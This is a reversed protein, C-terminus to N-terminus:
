RKERRERFFVILDMYKPPAAGLQRLMTTVQGRHYSGHNVVHQLTERFVDSRAAGKFDRYEFTRQVGGAGLNGVVERVGNELEAWEKRAAALDPIRDSSRFGTPQQGKWRSLWIFEADCIHAITDRVSGFSNGMDRTFQETSLADVAELLRDRAWYNYDLLLNLDDYTM